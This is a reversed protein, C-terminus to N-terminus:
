DLMLTITLLKSDCRSSNIVTIYLDIKDNCYSTVAKEFQSKEVNWKTVGHFIKKKRLIKRQLTIKSSYEFINQLIHTSSYEFCFTLFIM